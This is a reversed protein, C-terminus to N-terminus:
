LGQPHPQQRARSPQAVCLRLVLELRQEGAHRLVLPPRQEAAVAVAAASALQSPPQHNNFAPQPPQSCDKFGTPQPPQRRPPQRSQRACSASPSPGPPEKHPVLVVAHLFPQPERAVGKVVVGAAGPADAQVELGTATDLAAPAAATVLASAAVAATATVAIFGLILAALLLAAIFGLVVIAAVLVLIAVLVLVLVLVLVVIPAVFCWLQICNCM